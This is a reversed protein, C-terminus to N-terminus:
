SVGMQGALRERVMLIDLQTDMQDIHVATYASYHFSWSARDLNDKDRGYGRRGKLLGAYSKCKQTEYETFTLGALWALYLYWLRCVTELFLIFIGLGEPRL